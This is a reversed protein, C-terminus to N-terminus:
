QEATVSNLIGSVVDKNSSMGDGRQIFMVGKDKTVEISTLTLKMATGGSDKGDVTVQVANKGNITTKSDKFSDFDPKM